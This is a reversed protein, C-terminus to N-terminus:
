LDTLAVHLPCCSTDMTRIALSTAPNGESATFWQQKLSTITGSMSPFPSSYGHQWGSSHKPYTPESMLEAGLRWKCWRGQSRWPSSLMM